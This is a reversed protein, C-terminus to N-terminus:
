TSKCAAIARKYAQDATNLANKKDDRAKTLAAEYDSQAKLIAAKKTAKDTLTKAHALAKEKVQVAAEITKNYAIKAKALAVKKSNEATKLCQATSTSIKRETVGPPEPQPNLARSGASNQLIIALNGNSAFATSVSGFMMGFALLTAITNQKMYTILPHYSISYLLDFPSVAFEASISHSVTMPGKQM